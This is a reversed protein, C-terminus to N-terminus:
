AGKNSPFQPAQKRAFAEIVEPSAVLLWGIVVRVMVQAGSFFFRWSLARAAAADKALVRDPYGPAVEPVVETLERPNLWNERLENLRKATAAVGQLRNASCDTGLPSNLDVGEPFPFTDFTTTPTYRPDNGVGLWTCLSLSWVEHLRSQLIGFIEDSDSAVAVAASDLLTPSRIWVFVRYKSVRSTGIYRSLGSIARRM